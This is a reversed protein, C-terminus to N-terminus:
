VTVKLELFCSPRGEGRGGFRCAEEEGCGGAGLRVGTFLFYTRQSFLRNKGASALGLAAVLLFIKAKM